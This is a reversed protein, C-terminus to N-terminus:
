SNGRGEANARWSSLIGLGDETIVYAQNPHNPEEPHTMRVLNAKILPELHTRRFFTRHSVGLTKMLDAQTRPVECLAMIKRQPETFKTLKPTVLSVAAVGSLQDTVLDRALPPVQDDQAFREQLHSALEWSVRPKVVALLTQTVLHDLVQEAEGSGRGIVAKADTVGVVGARCAYAIVAAEQETLRVGLQAQFLRQEETLLTEKLLTIEFTKERKDNVISPPVFGLQRWNGFISRVGTGAQDSLGIRRFAAVIAPNRVEKETPDLLQDMTVFADGPNWFVTRDLFIKIVPKRTQDGFDQHILLNIAAERFSIYDPPDDHRRLTAADISFPKEALRFYKEVLLQWAHIINDEVVVRDCWRHEPSWDDFRADIRQYDVIGRPLLYRLLRSKGFLLAAARTPRLANDSEVVFGWENLFEVDSLDAHRNAQKEQFVRRYWAVSAQDFFDEADLDSMVGSDYPIDGADRLFRRIESDTCREDGGGRRIYSQKIDGNLCIPKDKRRAEPVHFVLLTMGDHVVTSEQVSISRKFKGGARLCSLFDNQVKDVEIVGVIQFSGRKDEVGFVLHGGATNAFASVSKYTDSPVDHQAKKFEIDNWEYKKLRAILEEQNM